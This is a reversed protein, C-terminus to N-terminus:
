FSRNFLLADPARAAADETCAAGTRGALRAPCRRELEALSTEERIRVHRVCSAGSPTWAAEFDMGPAPEDEQIGLRDYLDIPTGTRTHGVGDGCYDARVLRVCAQHLDWLPRGDAATRWPRYGFRVCKGIAGATCTIGFTGPAAPVHEGAATWAGALPFGLRLGDPGPGCLERWTGTAPDPASLAYLVTEGTPDLPDPRHGDIRVTLPHGETDAAELVAGVLADGELVRGDDLTIRFATGIIAVDRVEAATAPRCAASVYGALLLLLTPLLRLLRSRM